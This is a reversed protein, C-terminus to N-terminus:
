DLDKKAWDNAANGLRELIERSEVAGALDRQEQPDEELNFLQVKENVPYEILKWKGEIVARQRDRMYMAYIRSYQESREGHILPLLSRFDIESADAGALELATAMADQLYIPTPDSKGRPIGPGAIVFPVRLSHEYMNQKGMLGHRGVALGHDSTFIVVTREAMGSSELAELIRGIQADLHTVLAYYERRHLRVADETRPFPALVEDRLGERSAPGLGMAEHDQNIPLFNAPVPVREQPYAEVYDRPTQRPDHPANFALYMFFPRDSGAAERLFDEADDALVESWHKGGQWYGGLATEWPSWEDPKGLPPRNYASDVSAPMGPRVHSVHGFLEEVPADVHWKGSMWTEYGAAKMRQPWLKGASQLGRFRDKQLRETKWLSQGSILMGRSCVCVAPSYSGMNYARTFSTGRAVLRDLHPTKVVQADNGWTGWAALTDVAQDDTLILLINPRSHEAQPIPFAGLSTTRLIAFLVILGISWPLQM